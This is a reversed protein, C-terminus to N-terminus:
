YLRRVSVELDIDKHAVTVTPGVTAHGFIQLRLDYTGPFLTFTEFRGKDNIPVNRSYDGSRIVVEGETIPMKSTEELVVGTIRALSVITGPALDGAPMPDKPKTADDPLLLASKLEVGSVDNNGVVLVAAARTTGVAAILHRGPPVGSFEFTEDSFVVGPRGSLYIMRRERGGTQGTVRVGTTRPRVTEGITISLTSPPTAAPVTRAVIALNNLTSIVAARERLRAEYAALAQQYQPDQSNAPAIPQPPLPPLPVSTSAGAPASVMSSFNAASLQFTSQPLVRSGYAVSKVAYYEPLNEVVVRVDAIVPGPVAFSTADIPIRITNTSYEFRLTIPKGDATVPLKGGNQVTVHVPITATVSAIGGTGRARGISTNNLVFNIGSITEEPTITLVTADALSLTGPYYTQLDLRGAAISYRGPPIYELTFRGNEDTETLGAMSVGAATEELTAGRAVAAMRVGALPMGQSDRLVGTVKGGQQVPTGQLLLLLSLFFSTM